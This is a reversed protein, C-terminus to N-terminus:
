FKYSANVYGADFSASTFVRVGTAASSLVISGAGFYSAESDSRGTQVTFTWRNTAEDQLKLIARGHYVGAAAVNVVAKFGNTYVADTVGIGQTCGLYGATMASGNVIMRVLISDTGNTSVGSFDLEICKASTPATFDQSSGSLAAMTDYDYKGVADVYEKTTGDFLVIHKGLTSDYLTGFIRDKVDIVMNVSNPININDQGDRVTITVGDRLVRWMSFLGSGTTSLSDLNDTAASSDSELAHYSGLITVAGSASISRSGDYQFQSKGKFAVTNNYTQDGYWTLSDASTLVGTAHATTYVTLGLNSILSSYSQISGVGAAFSAVGTGGASAATEITGIAGNKDVYSDVLDSFQTETPRDGTEFFTKIDAKRRSTM